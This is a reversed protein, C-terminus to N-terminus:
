GHNCDGSAIMQRWFRIAKKCTTIHNKSVAIEYEAKEIERQENRIYDAIEEYTFM